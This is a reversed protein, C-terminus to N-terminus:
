TGGGVAIGRWSRSGGSKHRSLGHSALSAAFTRQDVAHLGRRKCFAEYAGRLATPNVRAEGDLRCEEQLFLRVSDQSSRYEQTAARVSEPVGLGDRQWALCGALAWNLIGPLEERLKAPLTKDPRGVTVHFPVRRIRRWVAHDTGLVEPLANAALWVKFTPRFEFEGRYLEAAVIKDGGTMQKVLVEAFRAGREIEAGVVFRAGRLRALDSRVGRGRGDMFTSPDVHRGYDGLLTSATELLVSKGNAGSGELIFLCQERTDGTLSYGIARQLYSRTEEDPVVEALFDDWRPCTADPDFEVPALKTLMDERRHPRLEGAHLDVTGNQANFLMPGADLDEVRAILPEESEALSVMNRLRPAAESATAWKYVRQAEEAELEDGERRRSRATVKAARMSAGDEDRPWRRGDWGLWGVGPVYRLGHTHDRAFCEANGLDTLPARPKKLGRPRGEARAIVHEAMEMMEEFRGNLAAPEVQELDQLLQQGLQGEHEREEPTADREGQTFRAQIAADIEAALGLARDKPDAAASM